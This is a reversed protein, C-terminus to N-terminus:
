GVSIERSRPAAPEHKPLTLQLLGDRYEAKVLYAQPTESIGVAPAWDAATM